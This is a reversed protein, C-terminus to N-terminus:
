IVLRTSIEKDTLILVELAKNLCELAKLFDSKDIFEMAKEYLEKPDESFNDSM